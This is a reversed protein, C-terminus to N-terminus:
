EKRLRDLRWELGKRSPTYLGAPVLVDKGNLSLLPQNEPLREDFITSVQWKLDLGPAILGADFARHFTPMLAIGNRPDDNRSENFPIIHAAEVLASGGPILLRWGSAACRYDYIDLILRRFASSRIADPVTEAVHDDSSEDRLEHEYQSELRLQNMLPLLHPTKDAFWRAVIAARISDRAMPDQLLEYLEPDLQVYAVNELVDGHSRASPLAALVAERGPLPVLHWFGDSRLHFFPFYPNSHDSPERVVDFYASYRELLTPGFDIRNTELAGAESVDVLALLM